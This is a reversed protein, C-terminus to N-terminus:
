RDGPSNLVHLNEQFSFKDQICVKSERSPWYIHCAFKYKCGGREWKLKTILLGINRHTTLKYQTKAFRTSCTIKSLGPLAIEMSDQDFIEGLQPMKNYSKVRPELYQNHRPPVNGWTTITDKRSYLLLPLNNSPSFKWFMDSLDVGRSM